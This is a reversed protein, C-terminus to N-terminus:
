PERACIGSLGLCHEVREEPSMDVSFPFHGTIM